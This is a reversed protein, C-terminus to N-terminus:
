SLRDLRARHHGDSGLLSAHAQRLAAHADHLVHSEYGSTRPADDVVQQAHELAAVAADWAEAPTV